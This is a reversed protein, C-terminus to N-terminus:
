AHTSVFNSNIINRPQKDNEDAKQNMKSKVISWIGNVMKVFKYIADLTKGYWFNPEDKEHFKKKQLQQEGEIENGAKELNAILQCSNFHTKRRVTGIKHSTFNGQIMQSHTMRCVLTVSSKQM